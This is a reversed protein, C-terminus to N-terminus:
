RRSHRRRGTRTRTTLGQYANKFVQETLEFTPKAARNEDTLSHSLLWDYIPTSYLLRAPKSHDMGKIRDYVLRVSDGEVRAKNVADVVRDSQAVSVARDGTGHIIWFPVKTLGSYDSVTGGGCMSVAAAIRDPYTAAVDTTGYGGLSMGIVYVRNTDVKCESEVYDVVNMVKRPNWSGGPNQPAVVYADLSRGMTIADITGYRKVRDLNNGCLSAGHLFIILPKPVSDSAAPPTYLWFNYGDKVKDKFARIDPAASAGGIAFITIFIILLIRKM